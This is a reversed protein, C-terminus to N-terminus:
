YNSFDNNSSIDFSYEPSEIEKELNSLFYYSDLIYIDNILKSNEFIIMEKKIKEKLSSYDEKPCVFFLKEYKIKSNYNEYIQGGCTLIINKLIDLRQKDNNKYFKLSFFTKYFINFRILQLADSIKIDYNVNLYYLIKIVEKMYIFQLKTSSLYEGSYCEMSSENNKKFLYFPCLRDGLLKNAKWDDIKSNNNNMKHFSFPFYFNLFVNINNEYQSKTFYNNIENDTFKKSIIVNLYDEEIWVLPQDDFILTNKADLQLDKLLKKLKKNKRGKLQLFKIGFMEELLKRIEEGYDEVSLTSIYFNCFNKAFSFFELLGKRVILCTYLKKNNYEFSFLKLDKEPYKSKLIRYDELKIINGFICTNDLDFVINLKQNHNKFLEKLNIDKIDSLLKNLESKQNENLIKNGLINQILEIEDKKIPKPIYPLEKIKIIESKKDEKPKQINSKVKNKIIESEEKKYRNAFSTLDEISLLGNYNNQNFNNNKMFLDPDFENTNSSNNTLIEDDDKIERIQCHNLFENLEEPNPCFCNKLKKINSDYIIDCPLNSRKRKKLLTEEIKKKEKKFKKNIAILTPMDEDIDDFDSSEENQSFELLEEDYIKCKNEKENKQNSNKFCDNEEKKKYLNKKDENIPNRSGNKM